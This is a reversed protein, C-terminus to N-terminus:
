SRAKLPIYPSALQKGLQNYGRSSGASPNEGMRTAVLVGEIAGVVVSAAHLRLLTVRLLRYM